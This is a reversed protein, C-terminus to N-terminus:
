KLTGSGDKDAAAFDATARQILETQSISGDSNTDAASFKEASLLKSTEAPSLSGSGDSDLHKFAAKMYGVYEARSIAGDGNKDLFDQQGQTIPNQQSYAAPAVVMLGVAIFLANRM